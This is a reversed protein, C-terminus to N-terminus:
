LVSFSNRGPSTAPSIFATPSGSTTPRASWASAAEPGDGVLVLRVDPWRERLRAVARIMAGQQKVEVLRGVTGIVRAAEPIGLAARVAAPPPLDAPEDTDIGNLVVEVKRRPVTWWRTVAAAIMTPSAASGTSEGPSRLPHHAADQGRGVLRRARAVENGHETHLSRPARLRRAALGVYRFAAGLQHTHIVDAGRGALVEAAREIYARIRGPPKGLSIVTAGATEALARAAGPREVCVISVRHGRRRAAKTLGLVLRELGGVDLALVGHVIHLPPSVAASSRPAPPALASPTTGHRPPETPGLGEPPTDASRM